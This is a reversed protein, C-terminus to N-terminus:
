KMIKGEMVRGIVKPKRVEGDILFSLDEGDRARLPDFLDNALQVLKALIGTQLSHLSFIFVGIRMPRPSRKPRLTKAVEFYCPSRGRDDVDLRLKGQLPHLFGQLLVEEVLVCLLCLM